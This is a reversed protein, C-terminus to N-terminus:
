SIQYKELIMGGCHTCFKAHKYIEEGCDPCIGYNIGHLKEDILSDIKNQVNTVPKQNNEKLFDRFIDYGDRSKLGHNKLKIQFHTSIENAKFNKKRSFGTIEEIENIADNRIQELSRTDNAAILYGKKM